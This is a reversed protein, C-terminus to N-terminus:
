HMLMLYIKTTQFPPALPFSHTNYTTLLPGWLWRSKALSGSQGLDLLYWRWFFADLCGEWCHRCIQPFFNHCWLSALHPVTVGVAAKPTPESAAVSLGTGVGLNLQLFGMWAQRGSSCPEQGGPGGLWLFVLSPSGPHYEALGCGVGDRRWLLGKAAWLLSNYATEWLSPQQLSKDIGLKYTFM